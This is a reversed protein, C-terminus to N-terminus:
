TPWKLKMLLVSPFFFYHKEVNTESTQLKGGSLGTKDRVSASPFAREVGQSSFLTENM